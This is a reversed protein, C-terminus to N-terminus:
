KKIAKKRASDSYEFNLYQSPYLNLIQVTLTPESILVIKYYKSLNILYDHVIACKLIRLM